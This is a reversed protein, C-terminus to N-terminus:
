EWRPHDETDCDGVIPSGIQRCSKLQNGVGTSNNDYVYDTAAIVFSVLLVTVLFIAVLIVATFKSM